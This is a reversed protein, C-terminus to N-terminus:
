KDGMKEKTAQVIYAGPKYGAQEAARRITEGIKKDVVIRFSDKHEKQWKNKYATEKTGM